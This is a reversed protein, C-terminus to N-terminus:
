SGNQKKMWKPARAAVWRTAHPVAVGEEAKSGQEREGKKEEGKEEAKGERKESAISLSFSSSLGRGWGLV